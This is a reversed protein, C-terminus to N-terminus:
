MRDSTVVDIIGLIDGAADEIVTEVSSLSTLTLTADQPAPSALVFAVAFAALILPCTQTAHEVCLLTTSSSFSSRRTPNFLTPPQSGAFFPRHLANYLACLYESETPIRPQLDLLTPAFPPPKYTLKMVEEKPTDYPTADAHTIPDKKPGLSRFVNVEVTRYSPRLRQLLGKGNGNVCTHIGYRLLRELGSHLSRTLCYM